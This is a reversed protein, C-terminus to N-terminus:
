QYSLFSQWSTKPHTTMYKEAKKVHEMKFFRKGIATNVTHMIRGIHEDRVEQTSNDFDELPYLSVIYFLLCDPVIHERTMTQLQHETYYKKYIKFDSGLYKDLCIGVISDGVVISQDLAGIQTYILPIHIHPIMQQLRTFATTLNENIDDMNSYQIDVERIIQQLTSDQYYKLFNENIDAQDVNGIQLINEILARTEIPYNTNMTQLASFDGNTLFRSQLRDYREVTVVLANDDEPTNNWLSMQCAYLLNICVILLSINLSLKM